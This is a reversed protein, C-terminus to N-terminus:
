SEVFTSAWEAVRPVVYCSQGEPQISESAIIPKGFTMIWHREQATQDYQFPSSRYLGEYDTAPKPPMSKRQTM